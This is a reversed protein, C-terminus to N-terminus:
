TLYGLRAMRHAYYTQGCLVAVLVMTSLGVEPSTLLLSRGIILEFGNALVLIGVQIMFLRPAWHSQLLLALSGAVGALPSTDALIMFWRPQQDLYNVTEEPLSPILHIQAAIAGFLGWSNWLMLLLGIVWFYPPARAPRPYTPPGETM